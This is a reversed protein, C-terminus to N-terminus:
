TLAVATIPNRAAAKGVLRQRYRMAPQEVYRWSIAAAVLSVGVLVPLRAPWGWGANALPEGLLWLVLFHWLYLGYSIRGLSALVRTELCRRILSPQGCASVVVMAAALGIVLLGIAWGDPDAPTWPVVSAIGLAILGLYGLWNAKPLIGSTAGLALLSGIMLADVSRELEGVAVGAARLAVCIVVLSVAVLALAWRRSMALIGVLLLPWMAYFQEEVGLSWTPFLPGLNIARNAWNGVYFLAAAARPAAYDIRNFGWEILMFFALMAILAPLLRIARRVYFARLDVRGSRELEELLLTTILFGSLVFFTAVGVVGGSAFMPVGFHQAMVLLIALGRM